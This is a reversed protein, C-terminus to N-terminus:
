ASPNINCYVAVFYKKMLKTFFQQVDGKFSNTACGFHQVYGFFTTQSSKTQGPNVASFTGM